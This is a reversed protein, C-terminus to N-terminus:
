LRLCGLTAVVRKAVQPTPLLVPAPDRVVPFMLNADFQAQAPMSATHVVVEDPPMRQCLELVFSEVRRAAPFDNTIVPTRDVATEM